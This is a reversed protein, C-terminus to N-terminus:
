VPRFNINWQKVKDSVIDAYNAGTRPLYPCAVKRFPRIM